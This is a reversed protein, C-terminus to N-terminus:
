LSKDLIVLGGGKDAPKIVITLDKGLDRLLSLQDRSIDRKFICKKSELLELNHLVLKEFITISPNPINPTFTSKRKFITTLPATGIGFFKKFKLNRFLRYLDICMHFPNYVPTPVVSLGLNLVRMTEESLYKSSLNFVLNESM